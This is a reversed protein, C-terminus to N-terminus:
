PVPADATTSEGVREGRPVFREDRPKAIELRLRDVCHSVLHSAAEVVHQRAPV